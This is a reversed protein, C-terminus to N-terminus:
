TAACCEVAGAPWSFRVDAGWIEPFFLDPNQTVNLLAAACDISGGIMLGVTGGAPLFAWWIAEYVGAETLKFTSGNLASDVRTVGIPTTGIQVTAGSFVAVADNVSGTPPDPQGRVLFAADELVAVASEASTLGPPCCCSM